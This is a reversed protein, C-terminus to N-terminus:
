ETIRIGEGARQQMAAVAAAVGHQLAKRANEDSVRSALDKISAVISADSILLSYQANEMPEAEPPGGSHGGISPINFCRWGGGPWQTCVEM